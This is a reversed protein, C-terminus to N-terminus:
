SSLEIFLSLAEMRDAEELDDNMFDQFAERLDEKGDDDEVEEEYDSEPKDLGKLMMVSLKDKM